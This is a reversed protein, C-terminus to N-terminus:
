LLSQSAKSSLAAIDEDGPPIDQRKLRYLIEESLRRNVSILDAVIGLMGVQFGIILLIASAILFQVHGHGAGIGM